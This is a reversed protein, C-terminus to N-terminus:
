YVIGLETETLIQFIWKRDKCFQEAYTWKATNIGWTHVENIYKPTIKHKKTPPQTQKKPKIEIMFTQTNGEKDKRTVIFDPFYRHVKNDIPSLYPVITEESSWSLVNKDHDLQMMYKLEWGSRYIIESPDGKYKQPYRPKFKGKHTRM